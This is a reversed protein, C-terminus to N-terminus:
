LEGALCFLSLSLCLLSLSPSLVDSVSLSLLISVSTPPSLLHLLSHCPSPAASLFLPLSLSFSPSTPNEPAPCLWLSLSMSSPTDPPRRPLLARAQGQVTAGEGERRGSNKAGRRREGSVGKGGGREPQSAVHPCFTLSGSTPRARAGQQTVDGRQAETEEDTLHSPLVERGLVRLETVETVCVHPGPQSFALLRPHLKEEKEEGGKM